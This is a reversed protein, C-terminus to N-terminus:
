KTDLNLNRELFEIVKSNGYKKAYYHLSYGSHDCLYPNAGFKILMEIGELNSSVSAATMSYMLATTGKYNSTNPNIGNKLFWNMSRFRENYAALILVDWGKNNKESIDYGLDKCYNLFDLDENMAAEFIRDFLDFYIEIQYDITNLIFYCDNMFFITGPKGLSKSDTIKSHSVKKGNILPLQFPRFRYARIQNHIEFATKNLDVLITSFNIASKSFYSSGIIGQPIESYSKNLIKLFNRKFLSIGEEHYKNFLDYSNMDLPIKFSYQDLINGTDIGNDIRHLTVGSHSEGNLLPLCSTFMGKYKPLLSFHINFLEKSLFKSTNIIVDFELSFFVLNEILYLDELNVLEVNRLTALKSLSRQWGDEGIDRKSKCVLIKEFGNKNNIVFDLAECALKHSGGIAVVM